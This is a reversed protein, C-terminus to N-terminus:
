RCATSISDHRQLNAAHGFRGDAIREVPPKASLIVRMALSSPTVETFVLPDAIISQVFGSPQQTSTETIRLLREILAPQATIWGLRCGPAVTKSFTDLRIVRGERDINISSPVLSDLFKYGSKKLLDLHREHHFEFGFPMILQSGDGFERWAVPCDNGCPRGLESSRTLRSLGREAYEKAIADEASADAMNFRVVMGRRERLMDPYIIVIHTSCIIAQDFTSRSGLVPLVPDPGTSLM